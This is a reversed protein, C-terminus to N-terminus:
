ESIGGGQANAKFDLLLNRYYEYQKQRQEIELPLGTKIDKSYDQLKDLINVIKTQIELSPIPIQINEMVNSMLKPNNMSKNVYLKAKNSLIYNLYKTNIKNKNKIELLGCVNTISFKGERYFTTGAYAGDTTWTVYEGDLDFSNIKGLEGNNETQSSYVSYIGKNNQIYQKSYVKGRSINCIEQIYKYEISYLLKQEISNLLEIYSNALAGGQANAKFDLLLNRYYEYQKQRQEIELPLGTKIDKSYDQLKDLINVIRTQIELSPISISLNLVQEKNLNTQDIGNDYKLIKENRNLVYFLFKPNIKNKNIISLKCIRQNVAYINDREVFYCKGLAKGNPLDSLVMTIDDKKALTLVKSAKKFTLGESSIFKSNIIKYDGNANVFPEHGKGNEYIVIEGLSQEIIKNDIEKNDKEFLKKLLKKNNDFDLLKNRYYQYQKDRAELEAELEAELQTFTDLIKVIENQIEIPPIPICINQFQSKSLNFRTVGNCCKIIKERIDDSRFLYKLFDINFLHTDNVRLGFCFSNLYVDENLSFNIISSMGCEEATESSGTFLVDGYKVKNQKENVNIQVNELEKVNISLNNFVNLYTIYKSNAQNNFDNKTKGSLGNYLIAIDKIKKYEVGNPCMEKILKDIKNM